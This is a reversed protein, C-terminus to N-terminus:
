FITPALALVRLFAIRRPYLPQVIVFHRVKKCGKVLDQTEERTWKKRPQKEPLHVPEHVLEKECEGMHPMGSNETVACAQSTGLHGPRSTGPISRDNTSTGLSDDREAVGLTDTLGPSESPLADRSHGPPTYSSGDIPM